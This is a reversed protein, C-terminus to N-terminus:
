KKMLEDFRKKEKVNILGQRFLLEGIQNMVKDRQVNTSREEIGTVPRSSIDSNSM